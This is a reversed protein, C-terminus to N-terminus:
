RDGEMLMSSYDDVKTGDNVFVSSINQDKFKQKLNSKWSELKEIYQSKIVNGDYEKKSLSNEKYKGLTQVWKINDELTSLTQIAVKLDENEFWESTDLHIFDSLVYSIRYTRKFMTEPAAAFSLVTNFGSSILDSFMALIENSSKFRISKSEDHNIFFVDVMDGRSLHNFALNLGLRIAIESKKTLDKGLVESEVKRPYDMSEGMDIAIRVFSSSEERHERVFLSESKAFIKWDIYSVPDGHVYSRFSELYKTPKKLIQKYIGGSRLSHYSRPINKLIDESPELNSLTNGKLLSM